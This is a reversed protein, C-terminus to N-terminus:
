QREIRQAIVPASMTPRSPAPPSTRPRATPRREGSKRDARDVPHALGGALPRQPNDTVGAGDAGSQGDPNAHAAARPSSSPAAAPPIDAPKEGEDVLAGAVFREQLAMFEPPVRVRPSRLGTTTHAGAESEVCRMFAGAEPGPAARPPTRPSRWARERRRNKNPISSVGTSEAGDRTPQGSPRPPRRHSPAGLPRTKERTRQM